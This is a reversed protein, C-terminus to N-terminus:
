LRDEVATAGLLVINQEFRDYIDELLEDRNELDKEAEYCENLFQDKQDEEVIKMGM